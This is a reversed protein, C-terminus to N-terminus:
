SVYCAISSNRFIEVVHSAEGTKLAIFPARRQTRESTDHNGVDYQKRLINHMPISLLNKQYQMQKEKQIMDHPFNDQKQSLETHADDRSREHRLKLHIQPVLSKSGIELFGGLDGKVFPSDKAEHESSNVSFKPGFKSNLGIPKPRFALQFQSPPDDHRRFGADLPIASFV